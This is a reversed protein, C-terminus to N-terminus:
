KCFRETNNGIAELVDEIPYKRCSEEIGVGGLDKVLMECEGLVRNLTSRRVQMFKDCVFRLRYNLVSIRELMKASLNASVARESGDKQLKARSKLKEYKRYADAIDRSLSAAITRFIVMRDIGARREAARVVESVYKDDDLSSSPVLDEAVGEFMDSPLYKGTITRITYDINKLDDLRSTVCEMQKRVADIRAGVNRDYQLIAKLASETATRVELTDKHSGIRNLSESCDITMCRIGEMLNVPHMKKAM